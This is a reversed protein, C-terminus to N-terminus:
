TVRFMATRMGSTELAMSVTVSARIAIAMARCPPTPTSCRFRGISSCAPCTSRTFRDSAPITPLGIVQLGFSEKASTSAMHPLYRIEPTGTTSEAPTSCPMTVLRSMRKSSSMDRGTWSTMVRIGSTVAGTPMSGM